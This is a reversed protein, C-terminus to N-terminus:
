WCSALGPFPGLSCADTEYPNGRYQWECACGVLKDGGLPIFFLVRRGTPENINAAM